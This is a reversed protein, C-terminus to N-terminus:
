IFITCLEDLDKKLEWVFIRNAGIKRRKFIASKELFGKSYLEDLYFLLTRHPVKNNLNNKIGVTTLNNQELMELISTLNKFKNLRNEDLMRPLYFYEVRREKGNLM